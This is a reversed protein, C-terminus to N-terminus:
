LDYKKFLFRSGKLHIKLSKSSLFLPKWKSMLLFFRLKAATNFM